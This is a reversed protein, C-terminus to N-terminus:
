DEGTFKPDDLASKAFFEASYGADYDQESIRRLIERLRAIEARDREANAQHHALFGADM